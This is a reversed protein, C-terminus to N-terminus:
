LLGSIAAHVATAVISYGDNLLHVEDASWITGALASVDSPENLSANSAVDVVVDAGSGGGTMWTNWAARRWEFNGIGTPDAPAENTSDIRPLMTLTVVTWGAAKAAAIMSTACAQTSALDRGAAFDNTGYWWILINRRAMPNFLGGDQEAPFLFTPATVSESNSATPASAECQRGPIGWNIVHASGNLLPTGGSTSYALQHPYTHQGSPSTGTGATLSDGAAVINNERLSPFKILLYRSVQWIEVQSLPRNWLFAEVIQAVQTTNAPLYSTGWASSGVVSTKVNSGSRLANYDAYGNLIVGNRIFQTNITDSVVGMMQFTATRKVQFTTRSNGTSGSWMQLARLTTTQPWSSGLMFGIEAGTGVPTASKAVIIVTMNNADGAPLGTVNFRRNGTFSLGKYGDLANDVVQPQNASTAQALSASSFPASNTISSLNSGATGVISEAKVWVQLGEMPVKASLPGSRLRPRQAFAGSTLILLCILIRM